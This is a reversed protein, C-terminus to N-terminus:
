ATIEQPGERRRLRAAFFGDMGHRDPRTRLQGEADLLPTWDVLGGPPPELRFDPHSALFRRVAGPGEEETDTCVSYVLVGGPRVARATADLIADQTAALRAVDAEERRWKLEPHRRIVGLGSCPADVLVRDFPPGHDLARTADHRVVRVCPLDALLERLRAVKRPHADSALLRGEGAMRRAVYRTKGGPAACADWVNEGPQPDLMWVVLQAAEDQVTWWAERFSPSAFPSGESTVHLAEPAFAARAADVGETALRAALGEVDLAPRDPRITLPAPANNAEGRAVADAVGGEAIWRRVLWAPQSLRVALAEPGDGAPLAEGERGLGRLMGNVLRAAGSGGSARAQEVAAHVAARAPIRDLFLLQYAGLRLVQRVRPPISELGRHALRDLTHDLRGRWREVGLALETALRRDRADLQARRVEAELVPQLFADRGDLAELVRLAVDRADPPGGPM